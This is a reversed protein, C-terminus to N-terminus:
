SAVNKVREEDDLNSISLRVIADAVCTLDHLVHAELTILDGKKLLLQEGNVGFDIVGEFIEIVIPQPAKHEEMIQGKKMLIRIEKTTKTKFLVSVNPKDEKYSINNTLSATKM